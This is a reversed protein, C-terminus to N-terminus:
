FLLLLPASPHSRLADSCSRLSREAVRKMETELHKAGKDGSKERETKNGGKDCGEDSPTHLPLGKLHVKHLLCHPFPMVGSSHPPATPSHQATCPATGYLAGPLGDASHQTLVAPFLQMANGQSRVACGWGIPRVSNCISIFIGKSCSIYFLM